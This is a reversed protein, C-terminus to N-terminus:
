LGWALGFIGHALVPLSRRRGAAVPWVPQLLRRVSLGASVGALLRVFLYYRSASSRRVWPFLPLPESVASAPDPVSWPHKDFRSVAPPGVSKRSDPRDDYRISIRAWGRSTVM